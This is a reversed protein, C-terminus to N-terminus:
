EERTADKFRKLDSEQVTLRIRQLVGSLDNLVEENRFRLVRYGYAALWATREADRERQAEHSAGELEVVLHHSSLYFDLVFRGVPHQRWFGLGDLQRGRLANWLIREAPTLERRLTRAVQQVGPSVGRARKMAGM